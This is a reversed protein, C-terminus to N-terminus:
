PRAVIVQVPIDQTWRGSSEVSRVARDIETIFAGFDPGLRRDPRSSTSRLFGAFREVSWHQECPVYSIEVSSFGSAALVAGPGEPRAPRLPDDAGFWRAYVDAMAAGVGVRDQIQMLPTPNGVVAFLGGDDLMARCATAVKPRDMWHFASAAVILRFHRRPYHLEEAAGHVWEINTVGMRGATRRGVAVMEPELDVATVSGARQALAITATGPGCGLELVRSSRDLESLGALLDWVADPYMPRFAAYSAAAGAFQSM